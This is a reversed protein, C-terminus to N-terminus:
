LFNMSIGMAVAQVSLGDQYCEKMEDKSRSLIEHAEEQCYIQPNLKLWLKLAALWEDFSLNGKTAKAFDKGNRIYAPNLRLMGLGYNSGDSQKNAMILGGHMLMENIRTGTNWRKTDDEIIMMSM